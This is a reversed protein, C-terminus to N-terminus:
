MKAVHHQLGKLFWVMLDKLYFLNVSNCWTVFIFSILFNLPLFKTGKSGSPAFAHIGIWNMRGKRIILLITLLSNIRRQLGKWGYKIGWSLWPIFVALIASTQISSKLSYFCFCRKNILMKNEFHNYFM